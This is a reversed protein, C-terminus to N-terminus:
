PKKLKIALVYILSSDYNKNSKYYDFLIQYNNKEQAIEIAKDEM